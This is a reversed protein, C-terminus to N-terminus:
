TKRRVGEQESAEKRDLTALPAAPEFREFDASAVSIKKSDGRRSASVSAAMASTM